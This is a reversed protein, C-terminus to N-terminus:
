LISINSLSKSAFHVKYNNLNKFANQLKRYQNEIISLEYVYVPTGCNYAAEELKKINM